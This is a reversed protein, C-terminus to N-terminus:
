ENTVDLDPDPKPKPRPRTPDPMPDTLNGKSLVDTQLIEIQSLSPSAMASANSLGVKSLMQSIIGQSDAMTFVVVTFSYFLVVIAVAFLKKKM